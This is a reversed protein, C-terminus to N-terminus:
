AAPLRRRRRRQLGQVLPGAGRLLGRTKFWDPHERDRLRDSEADRRSRRDSPTSRAEERDPRPRARRVPRAPRLQARGLALDRRHDRRARRVHRALRLGLAPLDLHVMTERTGHPDLNVVVIVTDDDGDRPRPRASSWSTTTTAALPRHPQAAAAARPARPPDRQAPHPVARAHPGRGRRRGLRPDPDPVEGLRPVGRQRAAGRRARLARLRRVRGLEALRDGRAGRPDQVGGPRRVAPLAHLIDPTNVFFNPRM